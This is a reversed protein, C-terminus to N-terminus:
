GSAAQESSADMGPGPEAQAPPASAETGQPGRRKLAPLHTSVLDEVIEAFEKEQYEPVSKLMLRWRRRAAVASREPVVTGWDM